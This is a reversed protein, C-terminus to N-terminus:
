AGKRMTSDYNFFSNYFVYRCILKEHETEKIIKEVKELRAELLRFLM